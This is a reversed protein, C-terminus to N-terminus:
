PATSRAQPFPSPTPSVRAVSTGVNQAIGIECDFVDPKEGKPFRKRFDTLIKDLNDTSEQHVVIRRAGAKIWDDIVEEPRMVMLDVEFDFQDRYPLGDDENLIRQFYEDGETYPWSVDKVFKGDMVDIQVVSAHGAVRALKSQLDITNTPMIAPIIEIM